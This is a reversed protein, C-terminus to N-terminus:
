LVPVELSVTKSSQEFRDGHSYPTLTFRVTVPASLHGGSLTITQSSEPPQNAVIDPLTSDDCSRGVGKVLVNVGQACNFSLQVYDADRAKWSLDTTWYDTSGSNVAYHVALPAKDFRVIEPLKTDPSIPRGDASPVTSRFFTVHSLFLRVLAYEQDRNIPPDLCGWEIVGRQGTYFSFAFRYSLSSQLTSVSCDDYRVGGGCTLDTYEVGDFREVKTSAASRKGSYGRAANSTADKVAAPTSVDVMLEGEDSSRRPYVPFNMDIVRVSNPYIDNLSTGSLSSAELPVSLKLGYTQDTKRIWQSSDTLSKHLDAIPHLVQAQEVSIKGPAEDEGAAPKLEIGRISVPLRYPHAPLASVNGVLDYPVDKGTVLGFGQNQDNFFLCGRLTVHKGPGSSAATSRGADSGDSDTVIGILFAFL